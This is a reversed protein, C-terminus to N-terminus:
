AHAARVENRVVYSALAPWDVAWVAGTDLDPDADDDALQTAFVEHRDSGIRSGYARDSGIRFGYLLWFHSYRGRLSGNLVGM